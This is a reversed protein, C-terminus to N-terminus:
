YRYHLIYICERYRGCKYFLSALLAWAQVSSYYMVTYFYRLMIQYQQTHSFSYILQREAVSFSIRWELDDNVSGKFGVPVFLVGYKIISPTLENDPWTCRSRYIWSEYVGIDKDVIMLDYDSGEINLGEARSGSSIFTQKTDELVCDSAMFITRRTKVVEKSGVINCIYNYLQPSVIRDEM